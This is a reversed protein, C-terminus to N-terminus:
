YLQKETNKVTRDLGLTIKQHNNCGKIKGSIVLVVCCAWFYQGTIHRLVLCFNKAYPQFFIFLQLDKTYIKKNNNINRNMKCCIVSAKFYLKKTLQM